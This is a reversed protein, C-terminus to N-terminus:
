ETLDSKTAPSAPDATAASVATVGKAVPVVTEVTAASEVPSVRHASVSWMAKPSPFFRM